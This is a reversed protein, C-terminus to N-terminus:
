KPLSRAFADWQEPTELLRAGLADVARAHLRAAAGGVVVPVGPPLAKMTRALTARFTRPGPDVLASLAVLHAKSAAVAHGLQQAPTRAGLYTVRLGLESFRLAAGLLGVDHEEDPFCACVV